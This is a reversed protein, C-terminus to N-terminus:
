SFHVQLTDSKRPPPINGLMERHDRYNLASASSVTM